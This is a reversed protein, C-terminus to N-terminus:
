YYCIFLTCIFNLNRFELLDITTSKIEDIIYGDKTKIIGDARGQLTVKVEDVVLKVQLPYESIYGDLQRAQYRSHVKSGESMSSRNFIRSDISGERLLFDVLQHVSLVLTKKM